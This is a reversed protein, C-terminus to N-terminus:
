LNLRLLRETQRFDLYGRHAREGDLAEFLRGLLEKLGPHLDDEQPLPPMRKERMVAKAVVAEKPVSRVAGRVVSILLFGLHELLVFLGFRTSLTLCGLNPGMIEDADDLATDAASCLWFEAQGTSVLLFAAAVPVAVNTQLVLITAWEGIGSEGLRKPVPRRYAHLLSVMQAWSVFYNNAVACVGMLPWVISFMTVYAFQIAIALYLSFTEFEPLRSQRVVLRTTYRQADGSDKGARGGRNAHQQLATPADRVKRVAM